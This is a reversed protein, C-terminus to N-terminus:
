NLELYAKFRNFDEPRCEMNLLTDDGEYAVDRVYAHDNLYSIIAGETHPIRMKCPVYDKFIFDSIAGELADIGLEKKASIMLAKDDLESPVASLQDVKNYVNLLPIDDAGIEKLTELTVSMQSKYEPNSIDIVHILLDANIVEELTSRFAKVLTHPLHSVFGVTDSLLFRRRNSMMVQRISTDLTAFLMDKEFVEKHSMKGSNRVFANMLTSKGSNTYGVLAVLPLESSVRKKRRTGRDSAITELALQLESLKQEAKRRDLELKKEGVGKNKTGVGGAQRGLSAYSGVLRPLLYKIRAMEVQLKAERSKARREFINLILVTRDSVDVKLNKELNRIQSPSLEDNFLVVDPALTEIAASLEEVKGSGIYTSASPRNMNQTLIGVVEYNCAIALKELEIMSQDFLPNNKLNVGAIIAKEKM